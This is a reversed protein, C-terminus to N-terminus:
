LFLIYVIKNGDRNASDVYRGVVRPVFLHTEEPKDIRKRVREKKLFRLSARFGGRGAAGTLRETGNTQNIISINRSYVLSHAGLSASCISM